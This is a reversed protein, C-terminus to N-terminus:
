VALSVLHIQLSLPSGEPSTALASGVTWREEVMEQEVIMDISAYGTVSKSVATGM